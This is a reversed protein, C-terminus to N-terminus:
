AVGGVEENWTNGGVGWMVGLQNNVESGGM